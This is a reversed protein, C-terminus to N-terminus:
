IFTSENETGNKGGDSYYIDIIVSLGYFKLVKKYNENM